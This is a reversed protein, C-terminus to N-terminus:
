HCPLNNQYILNSRDSKIADRFTQEAAVFDDDNLQQNGKDLYNTQGYSNSVLIFLLTTILLQKM